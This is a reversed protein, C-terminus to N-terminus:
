GITVAITDMITDIKDTLLIHRSTVPSQIGNRASRM